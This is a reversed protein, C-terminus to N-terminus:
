SKEPLRDMAFQQNSDGDRPQPTAPSIRSVRGVTLDEGMERTAPPTPLCACSGHSEKETSFTTSKDADASVEVLVTINNDPDITFTSMSQQKEEQRQYDATTVIWREPKFFHDGQM